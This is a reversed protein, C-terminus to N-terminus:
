KKSFINGNKENKVCKKAFSLCLEERREQLDQLQLLNLSKIYNLYSEGLIIKIATKQVRELDEINQITLSSNWVTCSFELISRVFMIYILKLDEFSANFSKARRLIEMRAYAKKVIFETNKDWKLDNSIITGLLKTDSIVDLKDNDIKLRTSFQKDRTFNFYMAKSKSKNIEM